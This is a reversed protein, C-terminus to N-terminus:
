SSTSLVGRRRRGRRGALLCRSCTPFLLYNGNTKRSPKEKQSAVTWHRLAPKPRHSPAVRCGSRASSPRPRRRESADIRVSRATERPEQTKANIELEGRKQQQIKIPFPPLHAPRRYLLLLYTARAWRLGVRGVVWGSVARGVGHGVQGGGGGGGPPGAMAMAPSQEVVQSNRVATTRLQM